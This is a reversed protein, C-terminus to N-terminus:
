LITNCSLLCLQEYMIFLLLPFFFLISFDESQLITCLGRVLGPTPTTENIGTESLEGRRSGHFLPMLDVLSNEREKLALNSSCRYRIRVVVKHVDDFFDMSYRCPWNMINNLLRLMWFAYGPYLESTIFGEHNKFATSTWEWVGGNCGREGGAGGGTTARYVDVVGLKLLRTCSIIFKRSLIGIRSVSM